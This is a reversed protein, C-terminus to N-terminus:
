RELVSGGAGAGAAGGGTGWSGGIRVVRYPPLTGGVAPGLGTSILSRWGFARIVMGAVLPRTLTTLAELVALGRGSWALGAVGGRRTGASM